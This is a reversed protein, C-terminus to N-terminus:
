SNKLQNLLTVHDIEYIFNSQNKFITNSWEPMNKMVDKSYENFNIMVPLEDIQLAIPAIHQHQLLLLKSKKSAQGGTQLIIHMNVVPVIIGRVNILGSCWEPSHPLKYIKLQSLNEAKITQELLVKYDGVAYFFRSDTDVSAEKAAVSVEIKTKANDTKINQQKSFLTKEFSQLM